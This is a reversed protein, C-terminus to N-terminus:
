HSRMIEYLGSDLVEKIELTLSFDMQMLDIINDYPDLLKVPINIIKTPQPFHFETTVTNSNNSFILTGKEGSMIIKAFAYVTNTDETQHKVIKWDDHLKLFVYPWDTTDVISEGNYSPLGTYVDNRFGLNHGIGSDNQRYAYPGDGFSLDFDVPPNTSIKVKGTTVFSSSATTANGGDILVSFSTTIPVTGIPANANISSVANNLLQEIASCLSVDTYNGDDIQILRKNLPNTSGSPITVYFFTNGLAESFMYFVHPIELSSLRVSIANNIPIPLTYTFNSSSPKEPSADIALTAAKSDINGSYFHRFRSDINIVHTKVQKEYRVSLKTKDSYEAINQVEVMQRSPQPKQFDEQNELEDPYNDDPEVDKDDEPIASHVLMNKSNEEYMDALVQHYTLPEM